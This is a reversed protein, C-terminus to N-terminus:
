DLVLSVACAWRRVGGSRHTTWGADIMRREFEGRSVPQRGNRTSWGRYEDYVYSRKPDERKPHSEARPRVCESAFAFVSDSVQEWQGMIARHCAPETYGRGGKGGTAVFAAVAHAMIKEMEGLLPTLIDRDDDTSTFVRDYEVVLWRRWFGSNARVAVPLRNGAYIHGARPYIGHGDKGKREVDIRGGTIASKWAGADQIPGAPLDDVVNIVAGDLRASAFRNAGMDQPTVSCVGGARCWRTMLELLTSKGTGGPGYLMLARSMTPAMGLVSAGLVELVATMRDHAEDVGHHGWWEWATRWMVPCDATFTEHEPLGPWASPLVMQSRIRHDPHPDEVSVSLEGSRVQTVVVAKDRFQVVGRKHEGIGRAWFSSVQADHFRRSGALTVAGSAKAASMSLPRTKIANTRDLGAYIPAGALSAAWTLVDERPIRHWGNREPQYQWVQGSTYVAHPGLWHALLLDACETEDGRWMRCGEEVEPLAWVNLPPVPPCFKSTEVDDVIDAHIQSM